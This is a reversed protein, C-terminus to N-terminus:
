ATKTGFPGPRPTSTSGSFSALYATSHSDSDQASASAPGGRGDLESSVTVLDAQPITRRYTNLTKGSCVAYVVRTHQSLAERGDIDDGCPELESDITGFDQQDAQRRERM